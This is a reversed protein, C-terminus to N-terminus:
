PMVGPRRMMALDSMSGPIPVPLGSRLQSRRLGTLNVLFARQQCTAAFGVRILGDSGASLAMRSALAQQPGVILLM